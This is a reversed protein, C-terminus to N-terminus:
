RDEPRMRISFIQWQAAQKTMVFLLPDRRWAVPGFQAVTADVLAVEPTVFRVRGIALRPITTESWPRRDAVLRQMRLFHEVERPDIDRAFHKSLAAPEFGERTNADDFVAQIRNREASDDASLGAPLLLLLALLPKM